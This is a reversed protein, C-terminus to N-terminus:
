KFANHLFMLIILLLALTIVLMLLFNTTVDYYKRSLCGEPPISRCIDDHLCDEDELYVTWAGTRTINAYSKCDCKNLNSKYTKDLFNEYSSDTQKDIHITGFRYYDKNFHNITDRFIDEDDPTLAVNDCVFQGSLNRQQIFKSIDTGATVDESSSRFSCQIVESIKVKFVPRTDVCAAMVQPLISVAILVAIFIFAIKAM